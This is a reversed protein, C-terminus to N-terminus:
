SADLVIQGARFTLVQAVAATAPPESGRPRCGLANSGGGDRVTGLIIM